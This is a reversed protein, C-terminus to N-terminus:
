ENPTHTRKIEASPVRKLGAHFWIRPAISSTSPDRSFPACTLLFWDVIRARNPHTDKRRASAHLRKLSRACSTEDRKPGPRGGSIFKVNVDTSPRAGYTRGKLNDSGFRRQNRETELVNAVLTTLLVMADPIGLKLVPLRTDELSCTRGM